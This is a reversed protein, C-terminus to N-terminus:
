VDGCGEAIGGVGGVKDRGFIEFYQKRGTKRLLWQMGIGTTGNMEM